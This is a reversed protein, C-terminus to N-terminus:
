EALVVTPQAMGEVVEAIALLENGEVLAIPGATMETAVKRGNKVYAVEAPDLTQTPLHPVAQLAMLWGSDAILRDPTSNQIRELAVADKVAFPGIAERRLEACHAPIGLKTGLDRALSRIYTGTSVRVRIEVDPWEYRILDAAHITVEVPKLVVEEGKRARKYAREGDIKKASFAPPLQMQTGVFGELATRVDDASPRHSIASPATLEGTGDDTSSGQGLRVVGWYTKEFGDLFRALRTAKGVLMVLLGTAFPDLTGTHGVSKTNLARRVIAVVDHSTIGAPKDVLLAGNV